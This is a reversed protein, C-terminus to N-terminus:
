PYVLRYFVCGNTLNIPIVVQNTSTSGPVNVWNNSIGVAVSNTQVQLTWGLHNIPWSLTLVSNTTAIAVKVPSTSPGVTLSGIGSDTTGASNGVAVFYYGTAGATANTITLQATTVNTLWSGNAQFGNALATAGAYSATTNYYWQYTLPQVFSSAAVTLNTAAGVALTVNQPQSVVFPATLAGNTAAYYLSSLQSPTLDYNFIALENMQGHLIRATGGNPDSGIENGGFFSEVQSNFNNTAAGIFGNIGYVYFQANQPTIECVAMGWQNTPIGDPDGYNYASSSGGWNYDVDNVSGVGALQYGSSSATSRNEFLGSPNPELGSGLVWCVFTIRNTNLIIGNNTVTGQAMTTPSPDMAVSLENAAGLIPVGPLGNTTQNGYLGNAGGAYDVAITSGHSDNLRWYAMPSDSMVTQSFSGAPDPNAQISASWVVSTVSNNNNTAVCWATFANRVNPLTLINNTGFGVPAGNTYWQISNVPAGSVAVAFSPSAGSYLTMLNTAGLNNGLNSGLYNWTVPLQSTYPMSLPQQVGGASLYLSQVQAATLANTFLAVDCLQGAFQRGLAYPTGVSEVDQNTYDPAAGLLVDFNPNGAVGNSSVGTAVANLQGDVYLQVLGSAATNPAAPQYVGVVQHWNGDNYNVTSSAQSGYAFQVSGAAGGGAANAGLAIRWSSNGHGVICQYRNDAPNGRFMCIVSFANSGTGNQSSPDWAANYGADAFSGVGSLLPVNAGQNTEGLYGTSPGHLAGPLTGPNYVGNGIVSGYNYLTPWASAPPISNVTYTPSDMRLYITPNNPVAAGQVLNFYPTAPSPNIGTQYHNLITVASLANTYVAVDDIARQSLARTDGRGNGVEFPTWYDPSYLGAYATTAGYQVGNTYLTMNTQADCTVVIHYWVDTNVTGSPTSLTGNLASGNNYSYIQFGSGTDYLRIGCVNGSGAGITGANLGEYGNQSWVDGQNGSTTTGQLRKYWCEVSFPPQLTTASSVHPVYLANTANGGNSASINFIVAAHNDGAIAGPEYQRIFANTASDGAWDPYYGNAIAGLSGYNTEIDGQAAAEVEHMPWYAIPNLSQISTALPTSPLPVVTFSSISSTVSGYTNNVVVDFTSTGSSSTSPAYTASTAGSILSGNQYWQYNLPAEGVAGISYTYTQGQGVTIPSPLNTVIQPVYTVTLAVMVNTTGYANTVTLELTQGNWTGPVANNTYATNLSSGNATGSGSALVTSTTANIWQYGLVPSGFAVAPLVLTGGAVATITAPPPPNLYPTVEGGELYQNLVQNSSLAYNYVAVDNIYGSFQDSLNTDLLGSMRSGISMPITSPVTTTTSIVTPIAASQIGSGSGVAASGVLQGNIYFTVSQSNVEDVVGVLHYWPGQSGESYGAPVPLVESNVLHTTGGADRIFFRFAHNTPSNDSGTDLDFQEQGSYGEAAIGADSSQAYGSVWAEVTFAVSTNSPSSFNVGEIWNACSGSFANALLTSPGFNASTDSPDEIPNYGPNGLITNTYLGDNGGAYDHAIAGPNGDFQGDDAENLRWYGMPNLGLTSQAYPALGASNTPDPIISASWVMSTAVSAKSNYVNSVVCYFSSAGTTTASIFRYNANTAGKVVAGNTYWQYFLPAVGGASVSFNPEAGSYLTLYNTNLLNSYTIPAQSLIVANTYATVTAVDSTVSTMTQFNTAIVYYNGANAPSLSAFNLAVNTQGSLATGNFYWQITVPAPGVAFATLTASSGAPQAVVAPSVYALLNTPVLIALNASSYMQSGYGGSAPALPWQNGYLAANASGGPTFYPNWDPVVYTDGWPDIANQSGTAQAYTQAALVYTTNSNLLLPPNLAQWLYGDVENNTPTGSPVVVYGLMTGNTTYLSVYHNDQLYTQNNIMLGVADYGLHTVVVSQSGVVFRGGCQNNGNNGFSGQAAIDYFINTPPPGHLYEVPYAVNPLVTLVANSSTATYPTGAINNSALANVVEGNNALSTFFSYGTGFTLSVPGNTATAAIPVSNSSWQLSVTPSGTVICSFQAPYNAYVITNTPQQEFGVPESAVIVSVNASQEGGLSNSATLYYTGSNAAIASPITLTASTQGGLPAGDFYWQYNIPQQGSAFGFVSVTQGVAFAQNTYQVGVRAQDVALNGLNESCYTTNNGFTSFGVAPWQGNGTSYASMNTAIGAGVFFSNFSAAFSDGWIDGDNNSQLCAVYYSTNSALLFPPDLPMWCFQNTYYDAGAGAPISVEVLLKVPNASYIGVYHSINLGGSSAIQAASVANSNFYGLHSVVVNSSGVTFLCGEAGYFNDRWTTITGPTQYLPEVDQALAAGVSFLVLIGAGALRLSNLISKM